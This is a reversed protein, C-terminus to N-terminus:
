LLIRGTYRKYYFMNCDNVYRQISFHYYGFSMLFCILKLPLCYISKCIETDFTNALQSIFQKNIKFIKLLLKIIILNRNYLAKEFLNYDNSITNYNLKIQKKSYKESINFLWKALEAYNSKCAKRFIEDYEYHIEIKFNSYKESIQLLYKAVHLHNNACALRFANDCDNHININYGASFYDCITPINKASDLLYKIMELQGNECLTKFPLENYIHINIIGYDSNISLWKKKINEYEQSKTSKFIDILYKVTKM